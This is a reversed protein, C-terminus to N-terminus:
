RLLRYNVTIVSYFIGDTMLREVDYVPENLIPEALRAAPYDTLTKKSRILDLVQEVFYLADDVETTIIDGDERGIKKYIAIRIQYTHLDASRISDDHNIGIGLGAVVVTFATGLEELKFAPVYIRTVGYEVSPIAGNGIESVVADAITTIEATPM